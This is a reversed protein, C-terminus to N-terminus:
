YLQSQYEKATAVIDQYSWLNSVVNGFGANMLAKKLSQYRPFSTSGRRDNPYQQLWWRLMQIMCKSSESIPDTYYAWLPGTKERALSRRLLINKFDPNQVGDLEETSFGLQSGVDRWHSRCTEEVDNHELTEYLAALHNVGIIDDTLDGSSGLSEKQKLEVELERIRLEKEQVAVKHERDKMKM